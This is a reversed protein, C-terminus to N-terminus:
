RWDDLVYVGPRCFGPENPRQMAVGQLSPRHGRALLARYAEHRALNVGAVLRSCGKEAAMAECSDLLDGFREPAEAGPRVAAFKVFVTDPGAESGEGAHCVAFAELAGAGELLITEGLGQEAVARIERELDLGPYLADTLARCDELSRERADPALSSFGNWAPGSTAIPEVAKTTVSTLFRPWFDFSQYLHIHKTSEPHTYLGAHTTGWRELVLMLAAWLRRGIGRDWQEPHVTLPGLVAFTGWRAAFASGVVEGDALAVYASAPDARWRGRLLDAGAAFRLPEPLRFVTGFALRFVHDAAALDASSLPRIEVERIEGRARSAGSV